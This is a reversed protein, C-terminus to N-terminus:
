VLFVLLLSTRTPAKIISGTLTAATLAHAKFRPKPPHVGGSTQTFRDSSYKNPGYLSHSPRCRQSVAVAFQFSRKGATCITKSKNPGAFARISFGFGSNRGGAFCGRFGEPRDNTCHFVPFVTGSQSHGHGYRQCFVPEASALFPFIHLPLFGGPGAAGKVSLTPPSISEAFDMAHVPLPL